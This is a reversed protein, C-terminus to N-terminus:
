IKYEKNKIINEGYEVVIRVILAHNLGVTRHQSLYKNVYTAFDKDMEYLKMMRSIKKQFPCDGEYPTELAVCRGNNNAFCDKECQIM